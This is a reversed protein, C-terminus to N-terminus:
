AGADPPGVDAPVRTSSSVPTGVNVTLTGDAEVVLQWHQLPGRAPGGIPSGNADYAAGHCFCDVESASVAGSSSMDCGQHTCISTMAYLGGADKGIIVPSGDGLFSLGDPVDAATLPGGGPSGPSYPVICAGACVVGAGVGVVKLFTRRTARRPADDDSPPPASQM